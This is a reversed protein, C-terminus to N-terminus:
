EGKYFDNPQVKGGSWEIIKKMNELSPITEGNVWRSVNEQTTGLEDAVQQQTINKDEIFLKLKMDFGKKEKKKYMLYM